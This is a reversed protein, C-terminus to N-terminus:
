TQEQLKWKSYLMFHLLHDTENSESLPKKYSTVVQKCVNKYSTGCKQKQFCIGVGDTDSDGPISMLYAHPQNKPLDVSHPRPFNFNIFVRLSESTCWYKLFSAKTLINEPWRYSECPLSNRHYFDDTDILLMLWSNRHINENRIYLLIIM